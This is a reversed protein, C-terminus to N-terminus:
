RLFLIHVLFNAPRDGLVKAVWAMKRRQQVV